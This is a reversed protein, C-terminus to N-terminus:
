KGKIVLHKGMWDKIILRVAEPRTIEHESAYQDLGALMDPQLRVLIPIGKGTAAPGRKRSIVTTSKTM